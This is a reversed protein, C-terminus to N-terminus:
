CPLLRSILDYSSCFLCASAEGLDLRLRVGEDDRLSTGLFDASDLCYGMKHTVSSVSFECVSDTCRVSLPFGLTRPYGVTEQPSKCLQLSSGWFSVQQDSKPLLQIMDPTQVHVCM